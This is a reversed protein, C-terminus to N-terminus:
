KKNIYSSVQSYSAPDTQKIFNLMYVGVYQRLYEPSYDKEDFPARCLPCKCQEVKAKPNNKILEKNENETTLIINVLCKACLSGHGCELNVRVGMENFDEYCVCCSDERWIKPDDPHQQTHEIRQRMESIKTKPLIEKTDNNTFHQKQFKPAPQEKKFVTLKNKLERDVKAEVRTSITQLFETLRQGKKIANFAETRLEDHVTRAIEVNMAHHNQYGLRKLYDEATNIAQKLVFTVCYDQALIKAQNKAQQKSLYERKLHKTIEKAQKDKKALLYNRVKVDKQEYPQLLREIEQVAISKAAKFTPRDAPDNFWGPFDARANHQLLALMLLFAGRKFQQVM